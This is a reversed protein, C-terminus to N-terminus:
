PQKQGECANEEFPVHIWATGNVIKSIQSQPIDYEESLKKQREGAEWRRRIARVDDDTLKARPHMEGPTHRAM